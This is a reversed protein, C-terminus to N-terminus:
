WSSMIDFSEWLHRFLALLWNPVIKSVNNDGGFSNSLPSHFSSQTDTHIHSHTDRHTFFTLHNIGRLDKWPNWYYNSVIMRPYLSMHSTLPHSTLPWRPTMHPWEKLFTLHDIGRLDKWRNWYYNSMIIRPYLSMHSPLPHSTLPWRPTM